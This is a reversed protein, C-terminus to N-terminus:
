GPIPDIATRVLFYEHYKELYMESTNNGGYCSPLTCHLADPLKSELKNYATIYLIWRVFDCTYQLLRTLM